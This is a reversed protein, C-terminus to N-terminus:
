PLLSGRGPGESEQLAEAAASSLWKKQAFIPIRVTRAFFAPGRLFAFDPGSQPAAGQQGSVGVWRSQPLHKSM